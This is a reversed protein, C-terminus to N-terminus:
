HRWNDTVGDSRHGRHTEKVIKDEVVMWYNLLRGLPADHEPRKKQAVKLTPANLKYYSKFCQTM